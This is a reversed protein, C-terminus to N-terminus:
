AKNQTPKYFWLYYLSVFLNIFFLILQFFAGILIFIAAEKFIMTAFWANIDILIFVYPANMLFGKKFGILPSYFLLISFPIFLFPIMLMHPHSKRLMSVLYPRYKFVTTDKLNSYNTYDAFYAKENPAHCDLCSDEVITAVKTEYFQDDGKKKVWTLMTKFDEETEFYTRMSGKIKYELLPTKPVFFKNQISQVASVKTSSTSSKLNLYLYGQFLGICLCLLVLSILIKVSKDLQHLQM